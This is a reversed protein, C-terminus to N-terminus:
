ASTTSRAPCARSSRRKAFEPEFADSNLEIFRARLRKHLKLNRIWRRLVIDADM